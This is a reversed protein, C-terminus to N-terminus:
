KLPPPLSEKHPRPKVWTQATEGDGKPKFNGLMEKLGKGLPGGAGGTTGSSGGGAAGGLMGSLSGLLGGLGSQGPSSNPNSTGVGKVMEAIKDRNQFGALAVVGLLATMSPMGSSM